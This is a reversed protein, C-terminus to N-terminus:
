WLIIKGDCNDRCSRLFDEGLFRKYSNEYSLITETNVDVGAGGAVVKCNIQTIEDHSGNRKQVVKDIIMDRAYFLGDILDQGKILTSGIKIDKIQSEHYKKSRVYRIIGIYTKDDIEIGKENKMYEVFM